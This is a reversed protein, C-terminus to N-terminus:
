FKIKIKRDISPISILKIESIIQEVKLINRNLIITDARGALM